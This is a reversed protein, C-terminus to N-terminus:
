QTKQCEPAAAAAQVEPPVDEDAVRKRTKEFKEPTDYGHKKELQDAICRCLALDKDDGEHGKHCDDVLAKKADALTAPSDSGDGDEGCGAAISLMLACLIALLRPTM